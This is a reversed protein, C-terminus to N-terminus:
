TKSWTGSTTKRNLPIKVEIRWMNPTYEFPAYTIPLMHVKQYLQWSMGCLRPFLDAQTYSGKTRRQLKQDLRWRESERTSSPESSWPNPLCKATLRTKWRPQYKRTPRRYVMFTTKPNTASEQQCHWWHRLLNTFPTEGGSQITLFRRWHLNNSVHSCIAGYHFKYLSIYIPKVCLVKVRNMEETNLNENLHSWSLLKTELREM